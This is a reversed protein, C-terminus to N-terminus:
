GDRRVWLANLGTVSSRLGVCDGAVGGTRIRTGRVHNFHEAKWIEMLSYGDTGAMSGNQGRGLWDVSSAGCKYGWIYSKMASYSSLWPSSLGAVGSYGCSWSGTRTWSTTQRLRLRCQGDRPPARYLILATPNDTQPWRPSCALVFTAMESVSAPNDRGRIVQDNQQYRTGAGKVLDVLVISLRQLLRPAADGEHVTFVHFHCHLRMMFSYARGRSKKRM